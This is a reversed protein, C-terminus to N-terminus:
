QIEESTETRVMWFICTRVLDSLSSLFLPVQRDSSLNRNKIKRHFLVGRSRFHEKFSSHDGRKISPTLVWSVRTPLDRDLRWTSPHPRDEIYIRKLYILHPTDKSQVLKLWVRWVIIEQCPGLLRQKEETITTKIRHRRLIKDVVSTVGFPLIIILM